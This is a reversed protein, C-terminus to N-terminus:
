TMDLKNVSQIVNKDIFERYHKLSKKQKEFSVTKITKDKDEEGRSYKKINLFIM